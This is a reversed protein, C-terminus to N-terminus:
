KRKKQLNIQKVNFDLYKENDLDHITNPNKLFFFVFFQCNKSFM